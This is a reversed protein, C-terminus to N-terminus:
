RVSFKGTRELDKAAPLLEVARQLVNDTEHIVPFFGDDKWFQRGIYAKLYSRIVQESRAFDASNMEVKKETAFATLETMLESSVAFKQQFEQASKFGDAFNPNKDRFHLAFQGFVNTGILDILYDSDDSTDRPVFVDPMIAGGGYVIRGSNTKFKLSDPLKIKSEDFIEGSKFRELIEKDYEESSKDYPKQICRGSPTYYKSVVIRMASGDSFEHQIQVLGKGFSRVGVILGRDWDQIAGSVIESASASGYDILVILAGKEFASLYSTSKYRGKSEPTRGETYVVLKGESLFEDALKQAMEMYGGPNGRLDLILSNLGEDKLGSIHQLFEEHTTQAFRSVKIYGVGPRIMYSYDVSYIPIKDRIIEFNLLNRAGARRIEVKVKSGKPGRLKKMVDANKIGIGAVNGDDIKVIRDGAQIGLQESPGGSIPSVVLITDDLINFEIGIGEFAGEMQEEMEAQEQAPIYFSHPDLGELMGIIADDVLKKADVEEVYSKEVFWVAEQFKQLNAYIQQRQTEPTTQNLRFGALMGVLVLFAGLLAIQIKRTM